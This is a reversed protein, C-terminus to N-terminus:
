SPQSCVSTVRTCRCVSLRRPLSNCISCERKQMVWMLGDALATFIKPASRLSFPLATDVLVQGQVGLLGIDDPHVPVIRYANQLDIKAMLVGRGLQLAMKAGDQVSPYKLSCLAELIDDNMSFGHPASLDVILRWKGPQQRKPIVRYSSIHIQRKRSDVPIVRGAQMETDIYQQVVAPNAKASGMNRQAPSLLNPWRSHDFSIRFGEKIDFLLYRSLARDPLAALASEWAPLVLPTRLESLKIQLPYDITVPRGADLALLDAIYKYHSGDTPLSLSNVILITTRSLSAKCGKWHRLSYIDILSSILM